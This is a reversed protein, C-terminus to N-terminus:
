FLGARWVLVMQALGLEVLGKSRQLPALSWAAGCVQDPVLAHIALAGKPAARLAEFQPGGPLLGAAEIAGTALESISAGSRGIEHTDPLVQLAYTLDWTRLAAAPLTASSLADSDM